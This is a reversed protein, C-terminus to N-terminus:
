SRHVLNSVYEAIAFCSTAAPSPANVIATLYPSKAFIFDKLLEGKANMAQARVGALTKTLERSRVNPFYHRIQKAYLAKFFSQLLERTTIVPYRFIFKQLGRFKILQLIEQPDVTGLSYGERAFALVASPGFETDGGLTVTAHVGLFPFRSDNVPYILRNVKCRSARYYEGRFPVIRLGSIDETTIFELHSGTLTDSHLGAATIVHRANFTDGAATTIGTIESPEIRTVKTSLKVTARQPLAMLKGLLSEGVRRYDCIGAEPILIGAEAALEPELAQLQKRNLETIALFGEGKIKLEMLRALGDKQAVILKGTLRYNINNDILYALLAERGKVCLNKKISNAPYYIGSHIVNSNRGSQHFCVSKEKEFLIVRYNQTILKHAIALGVLGGGIIAFDYM